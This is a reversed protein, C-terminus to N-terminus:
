PNRPKLTKVQHLTVLTGLQRRNFRTSQSHAGGLSMDLLKALPWAIPSIVFM